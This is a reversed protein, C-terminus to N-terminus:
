AREPCFYAAQADVDRHQFQRPRGQFSPAARTRMALQFTSYRMVGSVWGPARAVVAGLLAAHHTAVIARQGTRMVRRAACARGVIGRQAM